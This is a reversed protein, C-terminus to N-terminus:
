LRAILTGIALAWVPSSINFVSINSVAIVFTLAASLKKEPSSFALALSNSFVGILSFGAIIAVFEKPLVQIIPILKWSLLAFVSIIQGSVAAGIYRKDHPGSDDSACITSMMGAVNSTSGGFLSAAMSFIGSLSVLRDFPPRYGNQEVASLGVAADNSLVILALPLSVSIVSILNFELLQLQPLVFGEAFASSDLPLPQTLFLLLTATVVGAVMPPLRLQWKSSLIYVLLASGGVLPLVKIALVFNVIYKTIMGALMAAIIEKPIYDMLKSFVGMLGMVLMLCACIFYAGLLENYTYQSTMTALFALGTLSSAGAVPLRYYLPVVISLMGGFFFVSFAWLVTQETTFHGNAAGELIIAPAGTIALLASVTGATLNKLNFDRIISMAEGNM